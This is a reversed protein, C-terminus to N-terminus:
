LWYGPNRSCESRNHLTRVRRQYESQSRVWAGKLLRSVETKPLRGCLSVSKGIKGKLKEFLYGDGVILLRAEPHSGEVIAFARVLDDIGKAKTLRGLYMITPKEDKAPYDDVPAYSLGESVMSVHKFGIAELDKRTSQSVTITPTDLYKRLWYRELFYYGVFSPPFPVEYLWYERALQHIVAIKPKKVYSPTMFPKTNVEDVVIDFEEKHDQYFRRGLGQVSTRSGQRVINVGDLLDKRQAGDFLSTFLTVVQGRTVLRRAIEHTFVEAGGAEPNKVDKWNFWLIRVNGTM